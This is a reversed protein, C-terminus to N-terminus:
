AVDKKVVAGPLTTKGPWIKRGPYISTHIGTKANDGIITGLKRRGSDVLQGKIMSKVNGNDHRLNATITGAGFNVGKGIVSDACYSLHGIATGDMLIANKVEVANGVKCNNGISTCTRIFCNPGIVCDDGIVVPGEIYAGNKILTGKGVAVFGKLTAYKEVVASKSIEPKNKEKQRLLLENAELLSWPYTIPQWFGAEEVAVKQTKSLELVADTIEYEGRNSKRLKRLLQFISGPLVYCGTNVLGSDSEDPKEVLKKLIGNEAIIKGFSSVNDVKKALVCNDHRLCKKIDNSGYLDDGMIVLFKKEAAVFKEAQLLAHGTGLQETQFVYALKIKNKGSGYNNGFQTIIEESCFGVVIVADDILKTELLQQLNHELVTKRGIPLMVKSRNVTLPHLRTSKGAALIVAKM